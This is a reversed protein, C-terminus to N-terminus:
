DGDSSGLARFTCLGGCRLLLVAYHSESGAGEEGLGTRPCDGWRAPADAMGWVHVCAWPAGLEQLTRQCAAICAAV